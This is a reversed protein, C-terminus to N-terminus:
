RVSIDHRHCQRGVFDCCQPLAVRIGRSENRFDRIVNINQPYPNLIDQEGKNLRRQLGIIGIVHRDDVSAVGLHIVQLCLGALEALIRMTIDTQGGAPWPVILSIPKNPWAQAMATSAFMTAALAAISMLRILARTTSSQM